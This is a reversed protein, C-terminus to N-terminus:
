ALKRDEKIYLRIVMDEVSMEKRKHKLYNKFEVWSPPLKEFIAVVQFTESLTMGEVHIVHLLVQMGIVGIIRQCYQDQLVRQVFLGGFWESCLQSVLLRFTEMSGCSACCSCRTNGSRLIGGMLNRQNEVHNAVTNTVSVSTINVPTAVITDNTMKLHLASLKNANLHYTILDM